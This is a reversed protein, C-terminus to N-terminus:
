EFIIVLQIENNVVNQRPAVSNQGEIANNLFQFVLPRVQGQWVHKIEM